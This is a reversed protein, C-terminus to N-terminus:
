QSDYNRRAEKILKWLKENSASCFHVYLDTHVWPDKSKQYNHLTYIKADNREQELRPCTKMVHQMTLSTNPCHPCNLRDGKIRFATDTITSVITSQVMRNNKTIKLWKKIKASTLQLQYINRSSKSDQTIRLTTRTSTEDEEMRQKITNKVEEKTKPTPDTATKLIGKKKQGYM